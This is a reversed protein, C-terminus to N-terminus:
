RITSDFPIPYTQYLVNVSCHHDTDTKLLIGKSNGKAEILSMLCEIVLHCFALANTSLLTLLVLLPSDEEKSKRDFSLGLHSIYLYWFCAYLIYLM